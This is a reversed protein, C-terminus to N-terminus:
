PKAKVDGGFGWVSHSSSTNTLAEFKGRMQRLVVSWLWRIVHPEVKLDSVCLM